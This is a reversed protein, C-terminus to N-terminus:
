SITNANFLNKPPNLDVLTKFLYLVQMTEQTNAQEGTTEQSNGMEGLKRAAEEEKEALTKETMILSFDLRPKEEGDTM